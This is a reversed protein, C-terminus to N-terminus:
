SVHLTVAVVDCCLRLVALLQSRFKTPRFKTAHRSAGRQPAIGFGGFFTRPLALRLVSRWTVAVLSM